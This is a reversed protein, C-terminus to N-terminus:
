PFHHVRDPVQGYELSCERMDVGSLDCERLVVYDLEQAHSRRSRM